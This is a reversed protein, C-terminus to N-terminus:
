SALAGGLPGADDGGRPHPFLERLFVEESRRSHELTVRHAEAGDGAAIAEVIRQHEEWTERGRMLGTSAFHWRMKKDLDDLTRRLMDNHGCAAVARHFELSLEALAPDDAKRVAAIGRRVIRQLEKKQEPTARTAAVQAAFPGVLHRLEFLDRLERLDPHRVHAGAYPRVEVWGAQQLMRFAERVPMRSVGLEAAIDEEVLHTGPPYVRRVISSELAAYVGDSM